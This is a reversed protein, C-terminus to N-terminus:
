DPLQLMLLFTEESALNSSRHGRGTTDELLVVDGPGVRRVEGDSVEFEMGGRLVAFFQRRPTPHWDGDWEAPLGAFFVRSAPMAPSINLSPAPPAFVSSDM